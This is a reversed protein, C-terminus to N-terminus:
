YVQFLKASSPSQVIFIETPITQPENFAPRLGIPEHSKVCVRLFKEACGFDAATPSAHTVHEKVCWGPFDPEPGVPIGDSTGPYSSMRWKKHYFAIAPLTINPKFFVRKKLM